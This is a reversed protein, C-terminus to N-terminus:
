PMSQLRLGYQTDQQAAAPNGLIEFIRGRFLYNAPEDPDLSIATSYDNLAQDYRQMKLYTRGRNQYLKAIQPKRRVAEDFNTIAEPFLGMNLQATGLDFYISTMALDDQLYRNRALHLADEWLRVPNSFSGLRNWAAPVLALTVALLLGAAFRAPLRQLLFPLAAFLCGMWLYSRYLVFTEQARVTSLETAFLLWPALLAFGLLGKRGRKLLLWGAGVGYLAFGALGATEPWGWLRDAFREKMFVSMWAPNPLLWLWLYKFYLCTQTVVSLPLASHQVVGQQSLRKLGAPEYVGGIIGTTKAKYVVFAGALAYLLFTPGAKLLLQRDPKRVLVLLAAAVAPVMIAHEKALVALLCTLASLLWWRQQRRLLGELFLLWTLLAFLTAMLITRQVLYAAGYVAVPHVAFLLAGAFALWDPPLPAAAPSTAQSGAEDALTAAFLRRLLLFLLFVNSLHLALNGLRLWVVGDGLLNRTWYFSAYPLWRLDFRFLADYLLASDYIEPHLKDFFPIDDYVLTSGLFWGYLGSTALALLLFQLPLVARHPLQRPFPM